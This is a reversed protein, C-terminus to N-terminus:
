LAFKVTFYTFINVISALNKARLAFKETAHSYLEVNIATSNYKVDRSFKAVIQKM